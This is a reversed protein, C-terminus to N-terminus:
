QLRAAAGSKLEVCRFRYAAFQPSWHDLALGAKLKLHGLFDRRDPIDHWVAPLLLAQRGQDAIIVGDRGPELQRLLDQEDAFAIPAPRTLLSLSLELGSLEDHRLPLFRPDRFAANFANAAVDAALPRAALYSGVCGRLRGQRRLTVFSAGPAAIVAPLRHDNAPVLPMGTALGNVISARALDLLMPGAASLVAADAVPEAASEREYFAWAGYGVVRDRPGGVDGSNALDLTAVTMDRHRAAILLGALPVVGCAHRASLPGGDLQEVAAATRSDIEQAARYDLFHSLDSSVVILTEPGGWLAELVGAVAEPPARGVTVPVLEVAGLVSQVFPVHVEVSYEAGLARDLEDSLVAPMGSPRAIPVAGLPTQWADSTSGALGEFSVFHSPGVVVVRRIADRGPALRAYASAAVRGSYVYGAHPAVIAKPTLAPTAAPREAAALFAGVQQALAAPDGPYFRGAVAAPRIGSM